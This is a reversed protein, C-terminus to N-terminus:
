REKPELLRVTKRVTDEDGSDDRITAVATVRLSGALALRQRAGRGLKIRFKRTEGGALTLSKAGVYRRGLRIRLRVRCRTESGPCTARLTAVGKASVRARRTRVVFGPKGGSASGGSEPGNSGSGGGGPKGSVVTFSREAPTEDTMGSPAIARVRFTHQGVSLGTQTYPSGCAAFAAGDIRCEFAAGPADSTFQAVAANGNVSFATIATEPPAPPPPPDGYTAVYDGAVADFVLYNVGKVTRTTTAVAAGGRTLGKFAGTPGSVPLMAELGNAGAARQISFSLLNSSFSLGRFSSGNRGDLWTLMQRASVVPVGRARAAAVVADAGDHQTHDTHMNTTFVGYYGQAGLAGNLLANIHASYNIGSEDTLQTAAQYVDILSGDSDAFRMPIGSGTFMGPRDQVWAAPWYYYNTDLRVGNELAVIPESAWDSWAICHTRNTLPVDLSPYAARFAPLQEDWEDRLSAPTYNDCNTTLHLAIEFGRQEYAEAGVGGITTGPFVYSTARVCEWNAVVCGAPSAASFTDFQEDTGNNAHDDGTMVVAAREGRPLYWFRPLPIQDVSMETVLNALLRQQEDAQPISVKNMDVWSTQGPAFYLDDSRIPGSEGDRKQGAWEPNGQRTYVISRALDYTFAAAQGAGVGRLTVAPNATATSATSFLTAVVSTGGAVTWRDAVGHFQMTEATVGRDPAVQLYGNALDGGDAGLGLLGALMGDPRMAILNGGSRVWTDLVGAQAASLGTEALVVVDYAALTSASLSGMPAVAFENLGEARLIEAYYYGFQDAPDVVVLVPGGPGEKPSQAHAAPACLCGLVAALLAAILGRRSMVIRAKRDTSNMHVGGRDRPRPHARHRPQRRPRADHRGGHPAAVRQPRAPPPGAPEVEAQRDADRRQPRDGRAHRRDARRAAPAGARPLGPDRGPVRRPAQGRRREDDARPASRGAAEAGRSGGWCGRPRRVGRRGRRRGQRAAPRLARRGPGAGSRRGVGVRDHVVVRAGAGARQGGRGRRRHHGEGHLAGRGGAAGDADADGHALGGRLRRRGARGRGRRRPAAGHRREGDGRRDARQVDREGDHRHRHRQRRRCARGRHGDAARQRQARLRRRGLLQDRQLEPDPVRRRLRLGRERREGRLAARRQVADRLLRRRGRLLPRELPLLRRLDHGRAVSVPQALAAQQWGTGSAGFTVTGLLTGSETWLHGAVTGTWGAGRYHRLATIVGDQEARFRTGVEIATGDDNLPQAPTMAGFLSCPCTRGSVTVSAGLSSAGLNASDDAARSRITAQGGRDPTWVYSWSDRGTAPHWSAGDDTSVEVAGVRGGGADVATGRITVPAGQQLTEGGAPSTIVTTPPTTDTSAAAGILGSQLSGPQAGMDALLNVTAQQMSANPPANGRDHDADLGWSWQVTGAGFVLADAGAGNTDRYLTLHHTATGPGYNNGHDLLKQPVSETTSSMRVLGAPRAGNDLDEDWEYGITEATLTAVGGALQSAVTTGRWLRLRGDEAPVRLATSGTNVMFITGTLANEPRAGEPNFPRPDRWTGTWVGSLPDIRDNAHTEKYSVLTRHGDEWRTKWFVENGSFFALHVGADRAAEVNARQTGSWYEDHGVSLFTRHERLEAGLRDSDVGTSYSVDYGNRELWRVMPYEANFVWDESANGRTTFPRNYSVKYARNDPSGTYLSNGGYANYAQWTTDSTQFLVNSGGDDDRVIFFVHSAGSGGAERVLRAFYIGSVADGPVAWSASEAWNGCDILGTTAQNACAPQSQPLAASPQVTAVRRAGDGGYYGMRYIDLRYDSANTDVKFRVTAGQAVSIDTAFGQLNSDGAGSVEWEGPPSGAKCNEEVIENNGPDGCAAQAPSAAALAALAAAATIGM